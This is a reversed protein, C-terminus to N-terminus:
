SEIFKYIAEDTKLVTLNVFSRQIQTTAMGSVIIKKNLHSKCLDEMYDDLLMGTFNTIVHVYLYKIEKNRTLQEIMDLKVNKGLYIVEWGNKKLLYNLYLLPLEHYEGLPTFLVITKGNSNVPKTKETEAIITNQIIYSTFHEQAPIVNNTSWLHGVRQLYPFCVHTITNEFGIKLVLDNLVKKFTSENFDIAAELLHLIYLKYNNNTISSDLIKSIISEENLVAIASVKLGSHYLFAIRLIRKLEENTYIRHHGKKRDPILMQYRKEWIRLTHAKIGSMNEIDRITFKQM